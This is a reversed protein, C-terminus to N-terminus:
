LAVKLAEEDILIGKLDKNLGETKVKRQHYKYVLICCFPPVDIYPYITRIDFLIKREAFTLMEQGIPRLMGTWPM